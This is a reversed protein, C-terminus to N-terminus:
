LGLFDDVDMRFGFGDSFKLRYAEVEMSHTWILKAAIRWLEVHCNEEGDKRPVLANLAVQFAFILM